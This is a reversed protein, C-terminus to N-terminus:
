SAQGIRFRVDKIAAQPHKEQLKKLLKRQSFVLEQMTASDDAFVTLVGRRVEGVRISKAIQDGLISKVSDELENASQIQNYGRRAMLQQIVSGIRRPASNM